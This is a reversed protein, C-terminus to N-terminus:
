TKNRIQKVIKELDDAFEILHPRKIHPMMVIRALNLKTFVGLAWGKRRLADDVKCVSSAIDKTPRIGIVNIIPKHAVEIGEIENIRKSLFQTNEWCEKVIKTFGEKGFYQLLAWFAIATGGSRTGTVSLHKFSGGALYPISFGLKQIIDKDRLLLGGSPILGMGMKHPDATISDIGPIRFDYKPFTYGLDEMFPYVFGGFAADVHCFIDNQQALEAIENIPEILGLSTTGAVGVLGVTNENILNKFDEMNPLYGKTLTATKITIGMIDAAKYFSMHANGSCVIEPNKIDRKLRNAISVAITNAESGGSVISGTINKGNFLEGIESILDEELELTGPFLGPDGLNKYSYKTFVELAFDAPVTCMSGLIRGSEYTLDKKLRQELSNLVIDKSMGKDQMDKSM